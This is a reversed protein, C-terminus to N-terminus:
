TFRVEEAMMGVILSKVSKHYRGQEFLISPIDPVYDGDTVPGFGIGPGLNGGGGNSYVEAVLYYNAALLDSESICRLCEVSTCNTAALVDEYLKARRSTANRRPPMAPSSIFAQLVAILMSMLCPLISIALGLCVQQFPMGGKGGNGTLMLNIIAGGASEGMVTIQKPDGGFRAIYQHTWEVAAVSDHLGVNPDMDSDPLATWGPM